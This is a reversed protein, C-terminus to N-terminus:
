WLCCRLIYWRFDFVLLLFFQFMNAQAAHWVFRAQRSSQKYWSHNLSIATLKSKMINVQWSCFLCYKITTNLCQGKQRVFLKKESCKASFRMVGHHVTAFHHHMFNKTCNKRACGTSAWHQGYISTHWMTTIDTCDSIMYATTVIVLIVTDVQVFRAPLFGLIFVYFKIIGCCIQSLSEEVVYLHCRCLSGTVKELSIIRGHFETKNLREICHEAEEASSM